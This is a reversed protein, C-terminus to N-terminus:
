EEGEFLDVAGGNDGGRDSGPAGIALEAVGDADFDGATFAYGAQDDTAEGSFHVDAADTDTSAAPPAHFLWAEGPGRGSFEPHSGLAIAAIGDGDLDAALVATTNASFAPLLDIRTWDDLSAAGDPIATVLWAADPSGVVLDARGDGDLEGMALTCGAWDTADGDLVTRAEALSLTGRLTGDVVYVDGAGSEGVVIDDIGDGDVDGVETAWGAYGVQGDMRLPAELLDGPGVPGEVLFVAGPGSWYAYYPAGVVLDVDGDGDVDGTALSAGAFDWDQGDYLEDFDDTLVGSATSDLLYVSGGWSYYGSGPAGVIIDDLGDDDLDALEVAWGAEPWWRDDDGHVVLSADALDGDGTVPERLLWATGNGGYGSGAGIMLEAMGDGDTDGTTMACGAFDGYAGVLATGESLLYEGQLACEDAECNQDIGDECVEVAGPYITADDDACDGAGVSVGDDDLDPDMLLRRIASQTVSGDAATGQVRWYV